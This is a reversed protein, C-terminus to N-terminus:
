LEALAEIRAPLPVRGPDGASPAALWLSSLSAPTAVSTGKVQMKGLADILGPPYRTLGVAARDGEVEAPPAVAVLRALYPPVSAAVSAAVMRGRRIAVVEEALVGELEVRTLESVLRSTVALTATAPNRGAALANLGDSEIVVVKPPHLGTATCLGDVLNLLRADTRPDAPRGGIAATIREDHPRMLSAALFGGLAAAAVVFIIVAVIVGALLGVLGLVVAPILALLAGLRTARRFPDAPPPTAGMAEQKLLDELLRDDLMHAHM